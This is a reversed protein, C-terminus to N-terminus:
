DAQEKSHWSLLDLGYREKLYDPSSFTTERFKQMSEVAAQQSLSEIDAPSIKSVDAPRAGAVRVLYAHKGDSALAPKPVAGEELSYLTPSQSLYTEFASREAAPGNKGREAWDRRALKWGAAEVAPALAEPTVSLTEGAAEEPTAALGARLAELKALALEGAKKEVWRERVREELEAFPPMSAEQKESVRAASIAKEDVVVNSLFKGPTGSSLMADVISRGVEPKTTGVAAWQESTLPEPEGHYQLGVAAAEQQLDLPTAPDAEARAGLSVTWGIMASRIPAERRAVAAAEAYPLYLDEPNLQGGTFRFNPNRFRMFRFDDYYTRALADLDQDKALPFRELLVTPTTESAIPHYAIEGSVRAPTRYSGRDAEPLAEFWAQLEATAPASQRAEATFDAVALELYDFAYEQHRNQWLKEVENPDPVATSSALLSQYRNLRLFRRLTSEFDVAEMRFQRLAAKYQDATQFRQVIFDALEKDTVRVGAEEALESFVIYSATDEDKQDRTRGGTVLAWFKNLNQKEILFDGQSLHRVGETPHNWTVYAKSVRSDGTLARVVEDGVSFTTLLMVVLLLTMVFRTKSGGKPVVILKDEDHVLSPDQPDQPKAPHTDKSM